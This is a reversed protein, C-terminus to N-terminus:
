SWSRPPVLSRAACHAEIGDALVFECPLGRRSYVAFELWRFAAFIQAGRAQMCDLGCLPAMDIHFIM